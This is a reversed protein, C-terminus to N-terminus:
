KSNDFPKIGSNNFMSIISKPCNFEDRYFLQLQGTRIMVQHELAINILASSTFSLVIEPCYKSIISEITRNDNILIVKDGLDVYVDSGYHRKYYIEANPYSKTLEEIVELLKLSYLEKSFLNSYSEQGIFLVRGRIVSYDKQTVSIGLNKNPLSALRPNKVYQHKVRDYSIGTLTEPIVFKFFLLRLFNKKKLLAKKREPYVAYYEYYNAIGDEIINGEFDVPWNYFFLKNTLPDELNQYYLKVKSYGGVELLQLVQDFLRKARRARRAQYIIKTFFSSHKSTFDFNDKLTLESEWVAKDSESNSSNILLNYGRQNYQQIQLEANSVGIPSILVYINLTM